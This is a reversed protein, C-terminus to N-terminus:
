SEEKTPEKKPGLMIYVLVSVATIVALFTSITFEHHGFEHLASACATGGFYALLERAKM